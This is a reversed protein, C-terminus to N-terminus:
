MQIFIKTGTLDTNKSTLYYCNYCLIIIIYFIILCDVKRANESHTNYKIKSILM